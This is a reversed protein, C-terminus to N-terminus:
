TLSVYYIILLDIYVSDRAQNPSRDKTYKWTASLYVLHANLKEFGALISSIIFDPLSFLLARSATEKSEEGRGFAGGCGRERIACLVGRMLEPVKEVRNICIQM